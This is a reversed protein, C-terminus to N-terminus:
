NPNLNAYISLYNGARDVDVVQLQMGLFSPVPFSGLGGALSPLFQPILAEFVPQASSLDAGVPTEIVKIKTASSPPPSLQFNLAGAIPDFGLNIGM